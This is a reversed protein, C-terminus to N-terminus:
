HPKIYRHKTQTSQDRNKAVWMRLMPLTKPLPSTLVFSDNILSTLHFLASSYYRDPFRLIWCVTFFLSLSWELRIFPFNDTCGLLFRFNEGYAIRPRPSIQSLRSFVRNRQVVGGGGAVYTEENTITPFYILKLIRFLLWFNQHGFVM